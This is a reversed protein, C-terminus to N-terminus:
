IREGPARAGISGAAQLVIDVALFCCALVIVSDLIAYGPGGPTLLCACVFVVAALFAILVAGPNVILFTKIRALRMHETAGSLYYDFM